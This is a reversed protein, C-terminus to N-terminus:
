QLSHLSSNKYAATLWVRVGPLQRAKRVVPWSLFHPHYTLLGNNYLWINDANWVICLWHQGNQSPTSLLCLFDSISGSNGYQFIFSLPESVCAWKFTVRVLNGQEAYVPVCVNWSYLGWLSYDNVTWGKMCTGPAKALCHLLSSLVPKQTVRFSGTFDGSSGADENM